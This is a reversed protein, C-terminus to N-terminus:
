SQSWDVTTNAKSEENQLRSNDVQVEAAITTGHGPLSEIELHCGMAQAREQMDQLGFHGASLTPVFGCGDDQVLLRASTPAYKLQITIQRCDAHRVANAVAEQGIRLLNMEVPPSLRVPTGSIEVTINIKDAPALPKVTEKLASVLDGSELLHCRLDWVSRRAEIMSHRSMRRATEVAEKAVRPVQEFCDSALDLQMTIGALEQEL